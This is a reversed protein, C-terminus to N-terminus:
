SWGAPEDEQSGEAVKGIVWPTTILSVAALALIAVRITGPGVFVFAAVVALAAEVAGIGYRVIPNQLLTSM